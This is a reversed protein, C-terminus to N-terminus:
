QGAGALRVVRHERGRPYRGLWGSTAQGDPDASQWIDMAKFHSLNPNPYGVGEIVALKQADYLEKMATLSPHFAIRDDVVLMDQERVGLAPRNQRYAPDSYPIVTSLGDVGGALQVVVLTKGKSGEAAAAIAARGFVSPVAVGLSVVALSDKLFNRRSLM